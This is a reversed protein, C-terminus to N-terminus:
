IEEKNTAIDLTVGAGVFLDIAGGVVDGMLQSSVGLKLNQFISYDLDLRVGPGVDWNRFVQYDHYPLIQIEEGPNIIVEAFKYSLHHQITRSVSFHPGAFVSLSLLQSIPCRYGVFLSLRHNLSSPRFDRENKQRSFGRELQPFEIITQDRENEIHFNPQPLNSLAYSDVYKVLSLNVGYIWRNKALIDARVSFNTGELNNPRVGGHFTFSQGHSQSNIISILILCSLIRKTNTPEFLNLCSSTKEDSLTFM